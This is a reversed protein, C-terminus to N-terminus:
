VQYQWGRAVAVALLKKGKGRMQGDTLGTYDIHVHEEFIEPSPICPLAEVACERVSISLVGVSAKGM